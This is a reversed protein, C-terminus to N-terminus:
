AFDTAPETSYRSMAEVTAEANLPHGDAIM